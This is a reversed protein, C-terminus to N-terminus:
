KKKGKKKTEGAKKKRPVGATRLAIALAQDHPYDESELKKINEGIAKKGKKLPM